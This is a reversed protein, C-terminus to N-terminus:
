LGWNMLWSQPTPFGGLRAYLSWMGQHLSEHQIIVNAFEGFRMARGLFPMDVRCSDLGSSEVELLLPKLEEDKARLATVLEEKELGGSYFTKKKSFDMVRNKLTDNYVGSLWVMHRFQKALPACGPHPSFEWQSAPVAEIFDYTMSRIFSWSAEFDEIAPERRQAARTTM